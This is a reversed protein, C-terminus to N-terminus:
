RAPADSAYYAALDAMDDDSLGAAIGDMTPHKRAGTKYAQLAKIIYEAQQRGIKPVAYVNPYATRYDAIGHCGECMQSRAKGRAPDAAAWATTCLVTTSLWLAAAAGAALPTHCRKM